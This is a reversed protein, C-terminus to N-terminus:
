WGWDLWDKDPDFIDEVTDVLDIELPGEDFPNLDGALVDTDVGLAKLGAIGGLAIGIPSAVFAGLSSFAGSAASTAGGLSGLTSSLSSFDFAGGTPNGTTGGTLWNLGSSIGGLVDIDSGGAVKATAIALLGDLVPDSANGSARAQASITTALINADRDAESNWGKYTYDLLNDVRDWMQNMAEQSLDLGNRVDETAAEFQMETNTEAVNQRWKANDLDIQYQMESYFRQRSDEMEAAFEAGDNLEGANFRKILNLQESRHKQVSVGLEDYFKSFDNQQEADFRRAANIEGQDSLIVDIREQTNIIEAEQDLRVNQMDMDLFAKANTVAATERAGLNAVEFKSLANAKNIISEQRNDLNKTTLTQFFVAEKEAIGLTAEMLATSMAATAATGSMGSFAISRKLQRATAQAWPPIIPEGTNPDKFEQSITKMQGTITAKSDLYNGEGLSDALLKGASTSTDIIHSIDQSAYQNLAEGTQNVTGDANVGTGAGEMDIEIESADVQADESVTGQAADVTTEDTGLKDEALSAEYSAADPTDGLEDVLEADEVTTVSADPDDGLGYREDTPDLTTGEADADLTPVKDSLNLGANTMYTNPDNALEEIKTNQETMGVDAMAGDLDFMGDNELGLMDTEQNEEAM